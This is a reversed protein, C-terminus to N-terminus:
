PNMKMIRIHKTATESEARMKSRAETQVRQTAIRPQISSPAAARQMANGLRIGMGADAEFFAFKRHLKAPDAPAPDAIPM